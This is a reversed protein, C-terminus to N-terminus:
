EFQVDELRRNEEEEESRRRTQKKRQTHNEENSLDRPREKERPKILFFRLRVQYM